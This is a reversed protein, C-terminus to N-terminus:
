DEFSRFTREITTAVAQHASVEGTMARELEKGFAEEIDVWNDTVPAPRIAPVVDLFVRSSRPLANPDLSAPSSAVARLSPVTRGTVALITQGEVSMAFEIFAWAAAKNTSREAMCFGDSHLITAQQRRHPLPAVDWEFGRIQRFTPVRVRSNLYMGLRGNQFRSESSEAKEAVADPMVKNKLRLDVFWQIAELSRETMITLRTPFEPRDVLEGGNQWIFPAVRAM